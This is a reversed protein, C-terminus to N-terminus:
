NPFLRARVHERLEERHKELDKIQKDDLADKLQQNLDQNLNEYRKQFEELNSKGERALSDLMESLENFGDELVPGLKRLQDETLRLIEALARVLEDRIETIANRDLNRMYDRLKQVEESNLAEELKQEAERSAAELEGSLENLQMFGTEVSDNISKKLEQSKAEMVPKLKELKEGSLEIQAELEAMLKESDFDEVDAHVPSTLVFLVALIFKFLRNM